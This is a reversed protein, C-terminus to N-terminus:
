IKKFMKPLDVIEEVWYDELRARAQERKRQHEKLFTQVKGILEKKCQGCLRKGEVCESRIQGLKADDMEFLMFFYKYVVCIGPTGGKERQEQASGRGGTFAKNIKKKVTAESDTTYIAGGGTSASMKSNERLSPLFMCQISAPKYYGLKPLIDRSIRFHPDQDVAHPILCPVNYGEIVSKLIAPVAQISTYFIKGISDSETLGFSAKIMSFTIRDAIQAAHTYMTKAMGTDSFIFTKKPDFGMAIVDLANEKALAQADALSLNDKFFFKEDDTMQFYLEVGFKEQLWKTFKWPMIHGLHINGSPGRGTYLYFPNGHEYKELIWSLDRHAFFIGRRLYPHIEHTHVQIRDLLEPTIPQIGFEDILRAYDIDGSVEWPTIIPKKM